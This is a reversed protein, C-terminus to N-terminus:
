QCEQRAAIAERCHFCTGCPEPGPGYCTWLDDISVANDRTLYRYVDAKSWGELPCVFRVPRRAAIAAVASLAAYFETTCDPYCHADDPRLATTKSGTIIDCAGRLEAVHASLAGLVLNRSAIYDVDQRMLLPARLELMQMRDSHAADLASFLARSRRREESSYPAGFDIFLATIKEYRNEGDQALAWLLAATSDWGSSFQVVANKPAISM